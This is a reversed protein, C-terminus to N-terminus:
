IHEVLGNSKHNSPIFQPQALRSLTNTNATDLLSYMFDKMKWIATNKQIIM